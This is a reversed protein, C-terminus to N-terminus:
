QPRAPGPAQLQPQRAQMMRQEPPMAQGAQRQAEMQTLAADIAHSAAVAAAQQTSQAIAGQMMQNQVADMQSQQIAALHQRCREYYAIFNQQVEPSAELFETTAMAGELEDLMISHDWFPFPLHEPLAEGEWLRSIMSAALKRYQVERGEILDDNYRMAIAIKSPDLKGTRKDTYLISAPGSLDEIVRARRIVSLEPVLSSEDVKIVFNTGSRLIDDTHFVMVEDRNSKGTYNLTRIPPYYQRVRNVRMQHVRALQEGMHNFFPGDESDLIEQLMPLALPGRLQGPFQKHQLLDSGGVDSVFQVVQETVQMFWQPLPAHQMPVVLPAGNDSIGGEVTGNIDTPIDAKTLGTGLLLVENITANAAEGAQSMRKNYFKQAPILDTVFDSTWFTNTPAEYHFDVCPVEGYSIEGDDLPNGQNPVFITRRGHPYNECPPQYRTLVIAMPPDDPGRSGQIAPIMDRLNMNALPRGRDMVRTKVIALDEGPRSSLGKLANAGFTDKIWGHTKVQGIYCAQDAPLDKIGTVASDIFFNFPSLIESGVDGVINLHQVLTFREPPLQGSQIVQQVVSDAFIRGSQAEKWLAEGTEPDVAPIPEETSSEVWPVHEICCGTLVTWWIRKWHQTREGVKFDLGRLLDNVVDADDMARPELKNPSAGFRLQLKYIRGIRRRAAKKIFNFVLNLVNKNDDNQSARQWITSQAHAMGQEGFFAGLAFLMRSEVGGYMKHKQSQLRRFDRTFAAVDDSVPDGPTQNTRAM